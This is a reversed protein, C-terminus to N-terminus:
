VLVEKMYQKVGEFMINEAANYDRDLYNHCSECEYKRVSLDLM